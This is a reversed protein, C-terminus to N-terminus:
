WALTLRSRFHRRVGTLPDVFTLERALLKLPREYDDASVPQLVPYITDNCIPIGLAAMQARLQHKKGTLPSLRYRGLDGRTALIEIRTEANPDGATEKMQMFADSEVLRSRYDLPLSVDHRVPAIAEYHKIVRRDRFLRQYRDRATRHVAFMVLGATERDLRHIPALEPMDFERQLRVLLTEQVFRGSPTVPLFHPKDAVLLSNDRYIVEAAFPIRPEDAIERFYHLRAHARYPEDPMVSSGDSHLVAGRAIRDRWTENGVAPFRESLFELVTSWPGPPLRVTSAGVGDRNRPLPM